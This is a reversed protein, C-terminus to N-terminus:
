DVEERDLGDCFARLAVFDKTLFRDLIHESVVLKFNLLYLFSVEIKGLDKPAVGGVTAFSKQKQHVDELKKTLCRLLALIFRYVNLPTLTVVDLLVCLKYIMYASHIYVSVSISPSYTKIRVLFQAISIPPAKALSFCRLLHEAQTQVKPQMHFLVERRLRAINHCTIPDLPIDLSTTQVLLETLILKLGKGVDNEKENETDTSQTVLSQVSANEQSMLARNPETATTDLNQEPTDPLVSLIGPIDTIQVHHQDVVPLPGDCSLEHLEPPSEDLKPQRAEAQLDDIDLSYLELQQRRFRVFADRNEGLHILDELLSQFIAVAHFSHLKNVDKVDNALDFVLDKLCVEDLSGPDDTFTEQPRKLPIDSVYKNTYAATM